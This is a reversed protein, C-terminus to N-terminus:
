WERGAPPSTPPGAGRARRLESARALVRARTAAQERRLEFWTCRETTWGLAATRRDRRQDKAVMREGAHGRQGDAEVGLRLQEDGLDFRAIERMARDFLKVQPVLGPLVPQLLLRALTENPSEARGDALAVGRRVAGAHRRGRASGAIDSLVDPTTLGRHLAADLLCVLAEFSLIGALGPLARALTLSPCGDVLVTDGRGLLLRQVHLSEQVARRASRRVAVDDHEADRSGTAPDNDDILPLGLLRVTTRGAAWARGPGGGALVTAWGRMLPSPEVGGDAYVGRRFRQWQRSAVRRAITGESVGCALAQATTWVGGSSAGLDRDRGM